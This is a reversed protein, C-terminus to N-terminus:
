DPEGTEVLEAYARIAQDLTRDRKMTERTESAFQSRALLRFIDAAAEHFGSPLGAQTFTASIEEMEGVWRASDAPLFPTNETMSAAAKTQSVEFERWLVDRLGLREAAILVATQLTLTGKALAAYCMKVGSAAGIEPGADRVEIGMGDLSMLPGTEAGSCYIRPAYDAAPPGGIIGGDVFPAKVEAMMRAIECASAPSIANCDAYVPTFRTAAMAAVVARALPLADSPPLIALILDSSAVVADIDALGVMGANAAREKTIDSRGALCTVVRCGHEGFVRGIASGMVGPSLIGITKDM